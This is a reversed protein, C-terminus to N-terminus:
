ELPRPERAAVDANDRDLPSAVARLERSIAARVGELDAALALQQEGGSPTQLLLQCIYAFAVAQRPQIRGSVALVFLKSLVHNMSQPSCIDQFPGLIQRCLNVPNLAPKTSRRAPKPERREAHHACFRAHTNSRLMRCRRGDRAHWECRPILDTPTM